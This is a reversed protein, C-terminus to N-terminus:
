NSKKKNTEASFRMSILFGLLIAFYPSTYYMTNGFNSSIFYCMATVYIIYNVTDDKIRKLNTIALYIILSLYVLAGPIGIFSSFQLMINHPRDMFIGNSNYYYILAEMGGGVIPRKLTYEWATKWLLGRGSGVNGVITEDKQNVITKVDNSLETINDHIISNTDYYPMREGIRINFHSVLFSILLFVVIITITDVRKFKTILSYILSFLLSIVIALYCGFTNNCILMNLILVYSLLYIVKKIGVSDIYLFAALMTSIMLFYGYHNTNHYINIFQYYSFDSRFLPMVTIFVASFVIIKFLRRIYKKDDIVSAALLFGIYMIYVFLGEKRYIEGFFSLHPNDSFISSVLSLFLLVLILIQPIMKKIDFSKDKKKKYIYIIYETIGLIGIFYINFTFFRTYGNNSFNKLIYEVIPSVAWISLLVFSFFSLDSYKISSLAKNYLDKM